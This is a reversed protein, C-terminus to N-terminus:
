RLNKEYEEVARQLDIDTPGDFNEKKPTLELSMVTQVDGIKMTLMLVRSGDAKIIIEQKTTEEEEPVKAHNKGIGDEWFEKNELQGSANKLEADNWVSDWHQRIKEYDEEEFLLTWSNRSEKAHFSLSNPGLMLFGNETRKAVGTVEFAAYTIAEDLNSILGPYSALYEEALSLLRKRNEDDLLLSGGRSEYGNATMYQIGTKEDTHIQFGKLKTEELTDTHLATKLAHELEDTVQISTYFGNGFDNILMKVGTAADKQVIIDEKSRMSVGTNGAQKDLIKIYGSKPDKTVSYHATEVNSFESDEEKDIQAKVRECYNDTSVARIIAWRDRPSFMTIANMLSGISDRNVKLVGGSDPLSITLYNAGPSCDGLCIANSEYDCQFVVGQYVIEGNQDALGSYPATKGDVKDDYISGGTKTGDTQEEEMLSTLGMEDALTHETDSGSTVMESSHENVYDIHNLFTQATKTDKEAAKYDAAYKGYFATGRSIAVSM